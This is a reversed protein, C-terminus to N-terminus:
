AHEVARQISRVVAAFAAEAVVDVDATSDTAGTSVVFATDGDYRTHAPVIAAGLADHVRIAIRRLENPNGIGADTVIAILTTNQATGLGFAPGTPDDDVLSVVPADALNGVANLVVLAGVTAAGVAVAASGIGAKRIDEIAGWKNITAGTGAGVSGQEVAAVSRRRYAAAGDDATPRVDSRGVMLDFIIASPVIPVRGAPTPVGRGDRELEQVVGDAAALGFASGGAFVIADVPVPKIAEGLVATERTGPGGGRIDVVGLNPTPLAIVTVGTGAEVDTVHGVEVDPVATLTDNAGEAM